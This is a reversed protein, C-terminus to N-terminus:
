FIMRIRASSHTSKCCVRGDTPVLDKAAKLFGEIWEKAFGVLENSWFESKEALTDAM